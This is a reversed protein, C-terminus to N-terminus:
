VRERCSARGIQGPGPAVSGLEAATNIQPLGSYAAEEPSRKEISLEVDAHTEIASRHIEADGQALHADGLSVLAGDVNARIVVKAGTTVEPLDVNGMIETSQGFSAIAGAAPAVGLTGVFPRYPVM